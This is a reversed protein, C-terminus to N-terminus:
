PKFFMWSRINERVMGPIKANLGWAYLQIENETIYRNVAQVVRYKTIENRVRAYDHGSVIGGRRVKKTWGEIDQTIEPEGHNADIYVFDLSGDEFQRLADVSFEYIFRYNPYPSLRKEAESRLRDFSTKLTYDKYGEYSCYPDVGYLKIDPNAKLISESFRGEAVGIEAGTRCGAKGQFVALDERSADAVEIIGGYGPQLRYEQNLLEVISMM